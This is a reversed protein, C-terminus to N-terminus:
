KGAEPLDVGWSVSGDDCIVPFESPTRGCTAFRIALGDMHIRPALWIVPYFVVSIAREGVGTWNNMWCAPGFSLPYGILVVVLAVTIWFGGSPNKRDATM